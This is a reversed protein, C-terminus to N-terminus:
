SLSDEEQAELARELSDLYDQNRDKIISDSEERLVEEEENIEPASSGCSVALIALFSLIILKKM